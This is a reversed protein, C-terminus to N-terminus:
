NPRQVRWEEVEINDSNSSNSHLLLEQKKKFIRTQQNFFVTQPYYCIALFAPTPKPCVRTPFM